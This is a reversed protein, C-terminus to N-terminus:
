DVLLDIDGREFKKISCKKGTIHDIVIGDRVRYTRRKDSRASQGIQSLRKNYTDVRSQNVKDSLLIDNLRQWAIEENKHRDRTDQCKIIIGTPIHKLQVCTAVKNVRQGGKGSSRIYNKIVEKPDVKVDVKEDPSM